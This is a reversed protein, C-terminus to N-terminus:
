PALDVVCRGDRCTTAFGSPVSGVCAPCPLAKGGCFADVVSIKKNYAIPEGPAGCAECCNATNRLVCDSPSTCETVATDRIDVVTCRNAVCGPVFYRRTTTNPEIPPCPGCAVGCMPRSATHNVSILDTADVPDCAGCCSPSRLECDSATSCSDELAGCAAKCEQLTNFRNANGGCGGYVKQECIGTAPNYWFRPIAGDCPGGDWPLKCIEGSTSGGSGASGALNPAGGSPRGGFNPAGGSPRGGLNTAGGNGPLAGGSASGGNPAGALGPL